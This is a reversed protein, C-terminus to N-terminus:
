REVTFTIDFHEHRDRQDTTLHEPTEKGGDDQLDPGVSYIVYGKSKKKFKLPQGNYPDIPISPLLTPVLANLSDPIEGHHSNRWNEVAVASLATRITAQGLATRNVLASASPLVM